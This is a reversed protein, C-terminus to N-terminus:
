QCSSSSSAVTKSSNSLVPSILPACSLLAQLSADHLSVPLIRPTSNPLEIMKPTSNPLELIKPASNPLEIMKPTIDPLEIMKPASNPLEIMEPNINTLEIQKPLTSNPIEIQKTPTEDNQEEEKPDDGAEEGVAVSM